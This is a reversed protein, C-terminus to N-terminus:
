KSAVPSEKGKSTVPSVKGKSAPKSSEKEAKKPPPAVVRKEKQIPKSAKKIPVVETIEKIPPKMAAARKPRQSTKESSVSIAQSNSMLKGSQTKAKPM